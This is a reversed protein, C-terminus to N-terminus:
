PLRSSRVDADQAPAATRTPGCGPICTCTTGVTRTCRRVACPARSRSGSNPRLGARRWTPPQISWRFGTCALFMSPGSPWRVRRGCQSVRAARTPCCGTPCTRRGTPCRSRGCVWRDSRGTPVTTSSRGVRTPKTTGARPGCGSGPV